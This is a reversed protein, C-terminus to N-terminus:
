ESPSPHINREREEKAQAHRRQAMPNERFYNENARQMAVRFGGWPSVEVQDDESELRRGGSSGCCQAQYAEAPTLGSPPPSSPPPSSPPPPQFPPSPPPLIYATRGGSSYTSLTGGKLWCTSGWQTFGGCGPTNACTTCCNDTGSATGLGSNATGSLETNELPADFGLMACHSPPPPAPYPRCNCIAPYEIMVQMEAAPRTLGRNNMVWNVRSGCSNGAAIQSYDMACDDPLPPYPPPPPPDAQAAALPVLLLIALLPPLRRSRGVASAALGDIRPRM